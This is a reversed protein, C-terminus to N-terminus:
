KEKIGQSNRKKTCPKRTLQGSNLPDGICYPEENGDNWNLNETLRLIRVSVHRASTRYKRKEHSGAFFKRILSYVRSLTSSIKPKKEVFLIKAVNFFFFLKSEKGAILEKSFGKGLGARLIALDAYRDYNSGSDRGPISDRCEM